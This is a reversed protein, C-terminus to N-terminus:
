SDEDTNKKPRGMAKKPADPVLEWKLEGTSHTSGNNLISDVLKKDTYEKVFMENGQKDLRRLKM